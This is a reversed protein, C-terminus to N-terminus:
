QLKPTNTQTQLGELLRKQLADGHCGCHLSSKYKIELPGSSKSIQIVRSNKHCIMNELIMKRSRIVPEAGQGDSKQLSLMLRLLSKSQSFIHWRIIMERWLSSSSTITEGSLQLASHGTSRYSRFLTLLVCMWSWCLLCRHADIIVYQPTYFSM